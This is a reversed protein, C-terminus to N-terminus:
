QDQGLLQLYQQFAKLEQLLAVQVELVALPLLQRGRVLLEELAL